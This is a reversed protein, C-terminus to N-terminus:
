DLFLFVQLKKFDTVQDSLGLLFQHTEQWHEELPIYLESDELNHHTLNMSAVKQKHCHSPHQTLFLTVQGLGSFRCQFVQLLPLCM